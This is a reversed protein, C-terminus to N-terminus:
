LVQGTPHLDLHRHVAALQADALLSGLDAGTWGASLKTTLHDASRSRARSLWQADLVCLCQVVHLLFNEQLTEAVGSCLSGVRPWLAGDTLEALWAVETGPQLPLKSALAALIAARAPRDPFPCYLLRDLRGPRLLAADLLDPRSSAALVVVGAAWTPPSLVDKLCRHSATVLYCLQSDSSELLDSQAALLYSQATLLVIGAAAPTQLQEALLCKPM